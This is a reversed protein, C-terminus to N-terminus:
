PAPDPPCLALQGPRDEIMTWSAPPAMRARQRELRWRRRGGPAEAAESPLPAAHWRSEAGAAGGAGPTLLLGLPAALGGHHARAAGAEAALNLRRVPTLAPVEPLEAVVLPVVGARLAEELAWLIDDQRPAFALLLRGPEAHRALGPAYLRESHWGPAIWLVPGAGTGMLAVALTTRAPGCIEHVRGRTLGLGLGGPLPHLALPRPGHQLLIPSSM